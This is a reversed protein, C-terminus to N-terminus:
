KNNIEETIIQKGNTHAGDNRDINEKEDNDSLVCMLNNHTPAQM